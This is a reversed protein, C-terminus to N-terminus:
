KKKQFLTQLLAVERPKESFEISDSVLTMKKNFINVIEEKEFFHYHVDDKELEGNKSNIPSFDLFDKTKRSLSVNLYFGGPRLIRNIENAYLEWDGQYLNELLGFDCVGDFSADTFPIDFVDAEIFKLKGELKWNKIEENVKRVVDGEFDIGIVKFGMEALNKAILGRGSGIDLISGGPPLKEILKKVGRTKVPLHTWIDTGNQYATKYYDKHKSYDM